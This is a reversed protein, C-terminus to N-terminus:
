DENQAGRLLYLGTRKKQLVVPSKRKILGCYMVLFVGGEYLPSLRSLNRQNGWSMGLCRVDAELFLYRLTSEVVRKGTGKM